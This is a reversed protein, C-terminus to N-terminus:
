NGYKLISLGELKIITGTSKKNNSVITIVPMLIVKNQGKYAGLSKLEEWSPASYLPRIYFDASEIVSETFTKTYTKGVKILDGKTAAERWLYFEAKLTVSNNKDLSPISFDKLVIGYSSYPMLNDSKDLKEGSTTAKIAESKSNLKIVRNDKTPTFISASWISNSNLPEFVNVDMNITSIVEAMKKSYKVHMDAYSAMIGGDHRAEMDKETYGVPGTAEKKADATLWISEPNEIQEISLESLVANFVYGQGTTKPCNIIKGKVDITNFIKEDVIPMVELNEQFYMITALAIQKQNDFCTTPRAPTRLKSAFMWPYLLLFLFTITCVIIVIGVIKLGTNM